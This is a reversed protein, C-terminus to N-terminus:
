CGIDNWGVWKSDDAAWIEVCSEGNTDDPNGPSWMTYNINSGDM